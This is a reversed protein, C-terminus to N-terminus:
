RREEAQLREAACHEILIDRVLEGINADRAEAERELTERLSPALRFTFRETFRLRAM